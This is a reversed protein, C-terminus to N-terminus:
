GPYKKKLFLWEKETMNEIKNKLYPPPNKRTEEYYDEKKEATPIM